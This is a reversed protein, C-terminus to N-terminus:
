RSYYEFVLPLRVNPSAEELLPQRVVKGELTDKSLNLWGPISAKPLRLKIDALFMPSLKDIRLAVAQGIRVVYSPITVKKGNVLVHGHSVLHRAISRSIAFGLRFVVNDLRLELGSLLTIEVDHSQLARKVLRELAAEKIGYNFRLKQKEILQQGFETINRRKKSRGHMGPPYARRVMASKQSFSREGKLFLNTGLRRSIKEKAKIIPM